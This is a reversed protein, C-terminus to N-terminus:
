ASSVSSSMTEIPWAVKRSASPTSVSYMSSPLMGNSAWSSRTATPSPPLCFTSSSPMENGSASREMIATIPGAPAPLDVSSLASVPLRGAVM